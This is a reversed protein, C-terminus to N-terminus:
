SIIWKNTLMAEHVRHIVVGNRDRILYENKLLAPEITCGPELNLQNRLMSEQIYAM